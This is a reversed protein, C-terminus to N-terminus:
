IKNFHLRVDANSINKISIYEDPKKVTIVMNGLDNELDRSSISSKELKDNADQLDIPVISNKIDEKVSDSPGFSMSVRNSSKSKVPRAEENNNTVEESEIKSKEELLKIPNSDDNSKMIKIEPPDKNSVIDMNLDKEFNVSELDSLEFDVEKDKLKPSNTAESKDQKKSKNESRLEATLSLSPQESEESEEESYIEPLLDPTFRFNEETIKALDTWESWGKDSIFKTKLEDLKNQITEQLRLKNQNNDLVTDLTEALIWIQNFPVQKDIFNNTQKIYKEIDILRRQAITYDREMKSKTNTYDYLPVSNEKFNEFYKKLDELNIKNMEVVTSLDHIYNKQEEIVRLKYESQSEMASIRRSLDGNKTIVDAQVSEVKLNCTERLDLCYATIKRIEDKSNNTAALFHSIDSQVMKHKEGLDKIAFNIKSFEQHTNNETAMISNKIERISANIEEFRSLRKKNKNALEEVIYLKDSIQGVNKALEFHSKQNDEIQSTIPTLIEHIIGRVRTEFAFWDLHNSM